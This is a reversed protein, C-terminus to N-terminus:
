QYITILAGSWEMLRRALREFEAAFTEPETRAQIAGAAIIRDTDATKRRMAEKASIYEGTEAFYKMQLTFFASKYLERLIEPSKEHLINHVCAHYLGCAGSHVARRLDEETGLQVFDLSGYLVKTDFVFQFLESKEWAALEERGSLFGCLKEREPLASVANDYAKLDAFDLRDLIVVVDIDSDAKEEGRARSGQIGACLLREGFCDKVTELFGKIWQVTEKTMERMM